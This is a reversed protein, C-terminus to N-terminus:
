FEENTQKRLGMFVSSYTSSTQKITYPIELLSHKPLVKGKKAKERSKRGPHTLILAMNGGANHQM